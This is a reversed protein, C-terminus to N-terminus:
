KDKKSTVNWIAKLVAVDFVCGIIWIVTSVISGAIPHDLMWMGYKMAFKTYWNEKM